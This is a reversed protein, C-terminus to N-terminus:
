FPPLGIHLLKYKLGNHWVKDFAKAVDCLVLYVQRKDAMANAIVEYVIAIATTTGKQSRLGHQKDKIVNRGALFHNLRGQIIKELIKGPM